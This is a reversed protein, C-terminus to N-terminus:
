RSSQEEIWLSASPLALGMRDVSVADRNTATSCSRPMMALAERVLHARAIQSDDRLWSQAEDRLVTMPPAATNAHV